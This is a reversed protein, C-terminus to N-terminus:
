PAWEKRYDSHSAYPLAVLRLTPCPWPVPNDLPSGCESCCVATEPTEDTYAGSTSQHAEVIRRKAACEALVRAPDWRAIHKGRERAAPRRLDAFFGYDEAFHDEDIVVDYANAGDGTEETTREWRGSEGAAAARAVAEDEAIRGAAM